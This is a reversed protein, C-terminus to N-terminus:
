RQWIQNFVPCVGRWRKLFAPWFWVLLNLHCWPHFM